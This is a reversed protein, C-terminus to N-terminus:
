ESLNVKHENNSLGHNYLKRNDLAWQRDTFEGTNIKSTANNIEFIKADLDDLASLIEAEAFMPRVPSGFEPVGHHSLIMHELLTAKEQSVGLRQATEEIYMAGKVLHGILEGGASYGKCLGTKSIEMEYVKATDHLIAGSLLLERNINPYVQCVKEAMEVISATHLMLGGVIAHHLRYAAPYIELAERNKTMIDSVIAKFDNDEFNNVKQLLNSFVTKGSYESTPAFEKADIGSAKKIKSINLQTKGNYSDCTYEIEVVDDIAYLGNNEFRWLKAPYEKKDSGIIILDLFGNGNKDKKEKLDKILAYSM